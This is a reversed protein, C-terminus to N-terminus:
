CLTLQCTCCVVCLGQNHELHTFYVIKKTLQSVNCYGVFGYNVLHLNASYSFRFAHNINWINLICRCNVILVLTRNFVYIIDISMQIPMKNSNSSFKDLDLISQYWDNSKHQGLECKSKVRNFVLFYTNWRMVVKVLKYHLQNLIAALHYRFNNWNTLRFHLSHMNPIWQDFSCIKSETQNANTNTKANKKFSPFRVNTCKNDNRKLPRIEINTQRLVMQDVDIRIHIRHQIVIVYAIQFFM